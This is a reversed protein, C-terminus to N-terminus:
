IKVLQRVLDGNLQVIGVRGDGDGLQHSQQHVKVVEAPITRPGDRLADERVGVVREHRFRQFRPREREELPQQRPMQLDDILDVVTEQVVHPVPVRAIEIAHAAHRDDVLAIKASKSSSVGRLITLTVFPM